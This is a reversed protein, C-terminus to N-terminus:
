LELEGVGGPGPWVPPSSYPADDDDDTCDGDAALLGCGGPPSVHGPDLGDFVEAFVQEVADALGAEGPDPRGAPPAAM